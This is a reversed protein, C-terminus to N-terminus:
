QVAIKIAYPKQIDTAPWYPTFSFSASATFSITKSSGPLITGTSVVSSRFDLGGHYTNEADVSFTIRVPTGKAVSIATLDASNDNAHVVFSKPAPASPAPNATPSATPSAAPKPSSVSPTVAPQPQSLPQPLPQTPSQIPRSFLYILAGVALAAVLVLILIKNM